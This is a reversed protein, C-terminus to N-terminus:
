GAATLWNCCRLCSVCTISGGIAGVRV